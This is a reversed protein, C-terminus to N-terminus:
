GSREFIKGKVIKLHLVSFLGDCVNSSFYDFQKVPSFTEGNVQL